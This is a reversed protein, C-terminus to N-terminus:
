LQLLIDAAEALHELHIPVRLPAERSEPVLCDESEVNLRARLDIVVRESFLEAELEDLGRAFFTVM